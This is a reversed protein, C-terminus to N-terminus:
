RMRWGERITPIVPRQSKCPMSRRPSVAVPFRGGGQRPYLTEATNGMCCYDRECKAWIDGIAEDNHEGVPDDATELERPDTSRFAFINAVMMGDFGWEASWRICRKITNDDRNADAKSPNLMIWGCLNADRSPKWIRSLGYRYIGDHSIWASKQMM